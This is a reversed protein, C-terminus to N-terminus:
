TLYLCLTTTWTSLRIVIKLLRYSIQSLLSMWWCQTFSPALCFLWVMWLANFYLQRSSIPVSSRSILSFVPILSWIPKPWSLMKWTTTNKELIIPTYKQISSTRSWTNTSFKDITPRMRSRLKFMSSRRSKKISNISSSLMLPRRVLTRRAEGHYVKLWESTNMKDTSKFKIITQIKRSSTWTEKPNAQMMLILLWVTLLNHVGLYIAKILCTERNSGTFRM